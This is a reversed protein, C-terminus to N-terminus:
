LQQIAQGGVVFLSFKFSVKVAELFLDMPVATRKDHLLCHRGRITKM